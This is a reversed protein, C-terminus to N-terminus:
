HSRASAFAPLNSTSLLVAREVADYAPDGMSIPTRNDSSVRLLTTHSSPRAATRSSSTVAAEAASPPPPPSSLIPTDQASFPNQIPYNSLPLLCLEEDGPVAM